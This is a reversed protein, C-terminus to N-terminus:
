KVLRYFVNSGYRVDIYDFDLRENKSRADSSLQTWFSVLNALEESFPRSDNFYIVVTDGAPNPAYLEYEGRDKMLVAEAAIGAARVGDYFTQLAAFEATSTAYLGTLSGSTTALDNLAPVYYRNYAQGSFSPASRVVHGSADAFDCPASGDESLTTGNWDPLYPCILAAPSKETVSVALATLGARDVKVSDIRAAAAAVAKAVASRPYLFINTRPFFGAYDGELTALAAQKLLPSIDNDAGSIEVDSIQLARLHTFEWLFFVGIGVVAVALAGTIAYRTKRREVFKKSQNSTLRSHPRM